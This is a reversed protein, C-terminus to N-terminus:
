LHDFLGGRDFTRKCGKAPCAWAKAKPQRDVFKDAERRAKKREKAFARRRESRTTNGSGGGSAMGHDGNRGSDSEM